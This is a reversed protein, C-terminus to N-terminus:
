YLDCKLIREPETLLSPKNREPMIVNTVNKSIAFIMSAYFPLIVKLASIMNNTIDNSPLSSPPSFTSFLKRSKLYNRLRRGRKKLSKKESSDTPYHSCFIHEGTSIGSPHSIPFLSDRCIREHKNGCHLSFIRNKEWSSTVLVHWTEALIHKPLSLSLSVSLTCPTLQIQLPLALHM